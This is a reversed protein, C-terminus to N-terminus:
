KQCAQVFDYFLQQHLEQQSELREPHWQVGMLYPHDVHEFAEPIGDEARGTIRLGDAVIDIAQHHHSNVGVESSGLVRAVVSQEDLQVRHSVMSTPLTQAHHTAGTTSPIDQILTGGLAVNVMQFGRCIAMIPKGTLFFASFLDFEFADRELAVGFDPSVLEQGYRVPDVDEGGTLLLGDLSRVYYDRIADNEAHSLLVPVGGAAEIRRMYNRDIYYVSTTKCFERTECPGAFGPVVGILPYKKDQFSAM